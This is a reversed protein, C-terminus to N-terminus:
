HGPDAVARINVIGQAAVAFVCLTATLGLGVVQGGWQWRLALFGGMLSVFYITGHATDHRVFAEKYEFFCFVVWLAVMGWRRRAPGDATM